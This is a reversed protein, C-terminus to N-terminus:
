AKGEIRSGIWLLNGIPKASGRKSGKIAAVLVFDKHRERLFLLM